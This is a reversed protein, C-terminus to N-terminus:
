FVDGVSLWVIEYMFRIAPQHKWVLQLSQTHFLNTGAFRFNGINQRPKDV